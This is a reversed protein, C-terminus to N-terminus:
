EGESVEGFLVDEEKVIMCRRNPHVDPPFTDDDVM